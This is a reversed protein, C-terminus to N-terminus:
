PSSPQSPVAGSATTLYASYVNVAVGGPSWVRIEIRQGPPPPVFSARFPGWGEFVTQNRAAPATFPLVIEQIGDTARISRRALLTSTNNNDWVEVNVPAGPASVGSSLTVEARYRGPRELWEIGDAVYGKAGTAATHWDSLAGDLVPLSAAGGGAWAPLPSSDGPMTVSTVGPPPNLRFAWVGNAHAILTAHLPGALEGILAISDAASVMEIGSTPTIVFWTDAQVPITQEWGSIPYLVAREAFRGVVGQSAIVEASAPIRATVSALTAAEANSVRIWQGPIRPGWVAAWGIAQAAVVGALVLAARRHRKLLWALVAVTGIPLFIYAPINQFQPEGYQAGNLTDTFLVGLTIPVLVPMGIGLLGGPALNAIVDTRMSWLRQALRYYGLALTNHSTTAAGANLHLFSLLVFYAIGIVTLAAGMRRTQRSALVGGFGIAMVYTTSPAGGLLVPVAWIFARRKGRSLDWAMYTAFFIVLPEMHVDFSITWWLWPSAVLLLVGLGALLAADRERCRRRALACLWTLAVMEAGAISLDQAWLLVLSSHFIWYLPALVYPILEGDINLYPHGFDTMVPDLNGHAIEFWGQTYFSADGTLSFHEYLIVSWILFGAGQLGLLVYGVWRVRDLLRYTPPPPPPSGADDHHTAPTTATDSM